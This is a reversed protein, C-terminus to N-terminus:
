ARARLSTGAEGVPEVSERRSSLLCRDWVAQIALDWAAGGGPGAGRSTGELAWGCVDQGRGSGGEQRDRGEETDAPKVIPMFDKSRLYTLIIEEVRFLYM